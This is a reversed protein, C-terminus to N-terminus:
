LIQWEKVLRAMIRVEHGQEELTYYEDQAPSFLKHSSVSEWTNCGKLIEVTYEIM